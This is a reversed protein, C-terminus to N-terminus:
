HLRARAEAKKRETEEVVRARALIVEARKYVPIDVM